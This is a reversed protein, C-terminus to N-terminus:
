NDFKEFDINIGNKIIAPNQIDTVMIFQVGDLISFTIKNTPSNQSILNIIQLNKDYLVIRPRWNKTKATITVNGSGIISFWYEGSVEYTSINDPAQIEKARSLKPEFLEINYIWDTISNRKIDTVLFGRKYLEDIIISPDIAHETSFTFMIKASGDNYQAQSVSFYSYGMSSLTSNISRTLFIPSTQSIFTTSLDSPEDFKLILLGNEKLTNVLKKIDVRGNNYFSDKNQFIRNIFNKNINYSNTGILNQIKDDIPDAILFSLCFVISLIIKKIM